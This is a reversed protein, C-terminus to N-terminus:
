FPRPLSRHVPRVLDKLDNETCRLLQSFTSIGNAALLAQYKVVRHHTLFALMEADEPDM